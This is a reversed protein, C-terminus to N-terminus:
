DVYATEKDILKHALLTIENRNLKGNIKRPLAAILHLSIPIKQLFHHHQLNESLQQLSLSQRLSKDEILAILSVGYLPDNLPVIAAEGVGPIMKIAHEIEELNTKVGAVNVIHDNRGKIFVLGSSTIEALDGTQLWGHQIMTSAEDSLYGLMLQSGRILLENEDSLKLEWDGIPYGVGQGLFAPDLSSFVLVRPSAETLGYNNYIVANNFTNKLEIRLDPHLPAGASIVHTVNKHAAPFSMAMKLMAYWHSPVGSLMTPVQNTAFLQMTEIFNEVLLTTMGSILGPLLQGLLGFSYSLPLFILQDHATAFDLARMVHNCNAIINQQSLQVAKPRGMSGSTFLILATEPHHRCENDESCWVVNSDEDLALAKGLMRRKLQKEEESYDHSFIAIPQNNYFAALLQLVFSFDNRASLCIIGPPLSQLKKALHIYQSHLESFTMSHEKYRLALNESQNNALFEM